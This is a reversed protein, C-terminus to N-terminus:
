VTPEVPNCGSDNLEHFLFDKLIGDFDLTLFRGEELMFQFSFGSDRREILSAKPYFVDAIRPTEM